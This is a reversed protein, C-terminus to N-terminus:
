PKHNLIKLDESHITIQCLPQRRPNEFGEITSLTNTDCEKFRIKEGSKSWVCRYDKIVNPRNIELSKHWGKSPECLIGTWNYEKELLYTNSFEKGDTAGFDVFYGNRKYDLENLAFIDQLIQSKSISVKRENIQYLIKLGIRSLKM